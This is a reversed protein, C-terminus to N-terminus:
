DCTPLGDVDEPRMPSRFEITTITGGNGCIILAREADNATLDVRFATPNHVTEVAASLVRSTMLDPRYM